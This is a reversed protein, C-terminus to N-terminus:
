MRTGDAEAFLEKKYAPSLLETIELRRAHQDILEESQEESMGGIEIPYDGIFNRMRTTILVKNPPRIHTDIWRFVDSASQVTEFNDLVFLTTGAAGEALCKQFYAVPDVGKISPRLLDVAAQAIDHQTVVRPTVPKPGSELLDIDRASIWLIVQYPLTQQAAISRIAAIAITTKGIGGPGTLTVIPRRDAKLLEGKLADELDRRAVHGSLKPPVNTFTNGFPELVRAGETESPPLAAPPDSWMSSDQREVENTVYSLGEFSGSRHNGNPLFIDRVDPDSYVLRVHMPRSLYVYTGNPLNIDSQRKLYNFSTQDGCLPSVRYKGSLNRYLYAWPLRFLQLNGVIAALSTALGSCARGCQINTPAGHGRSRNRLMVGIEFYQRLAVKRGVSIDQVGVEKAAEILNVVASHRWDEPGVRENLERVLSRAEPDFFQAAPGALANTLVEVWKGLSDARVLDYELAYRHRDVDDGICSILGSTVTKTLYELKLSLSVFYTYDSDTRDLATRKDMSEFLLSSGTREQM